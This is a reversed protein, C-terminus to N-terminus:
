LLLKNMQHHTIQIKPDPSPAEHASGPPAATPPVPTPPLIPQRHAPSPLTLDNRRPKNYENRQTRGDLDMTQQLSPISLTLCSVNDATGVFRSGFVYDKPYRRLPMPYTVAWHSRVGALSLYCEFRLRPPGVTSRQSLWLIRLAAVRRMRVPPHEYSTM